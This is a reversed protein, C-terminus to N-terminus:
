ATVCKIQMGSMPGESPNGDDRIPCASERAPSQAKSLILIFFITLENQHVLEDM